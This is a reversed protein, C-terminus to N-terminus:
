KSEEGVGVEREMSNNDLQILMQYKTNPIWDVAVVCMYRTCTKVRQKEIRFLAGYSFWILRCNNDTQWTYKRHIHTHITTKIYSIYQLTAERYKHPNPPLCLSCICAQTYMWFYIPLIHFLISFHFLYFLHPLQLHEYVSQTYGNQAIVHWTGFAYKSWNHQSMRKTCFNEDTIGRKVRKNEVNYDNNTWKNSTQYNGLFVVCDIHIHTDLSYSINRTCVVCM